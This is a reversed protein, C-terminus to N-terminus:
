ELARLTPTNHNARDNRPAQVVSQNDKEARQQQGADTKRLYVGTNGQDDAAAGVAVGRCYRVSQLVGSIDGSCEFAEAECRDPHKIRREIAVAIEDADYFGSRAYRRAADRAVAQNDM